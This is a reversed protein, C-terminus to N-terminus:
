VQEFWSTYTSLTVELQVSHLVCTLLIGFVSNQLLRLLYGFIYLIQQLELVFKPIYIYQWDTYYPYKVVSWTDQNDFHTSIKWTLIYM